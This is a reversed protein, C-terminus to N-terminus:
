RSMASLDSAGRTADLGERTAGAVAVADRMLPLASCRIRSWRSVSCGSHLPGSLSHSRVPRTDRAVSTSWMSASTLPPM